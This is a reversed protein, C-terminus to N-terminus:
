TPQLGWNSGPSLMKTRLCNAMGPKPKTKFAGGYDDIMSAIIGVAAFVM